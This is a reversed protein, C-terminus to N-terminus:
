TGSGDPYSPSTAQALLREANKLAPELSAAWRALAPQMRPDSMHDGMGRTLSLRARESWATVDPETSHILSVHASGGIAGIWDIPRSPQPTPPCLRNKEADDDRASEVFAVVAANFTTFGGMLSQLTIRQPEFIPRAPATRFGSATCDVYVEGQNARVEGNQLVIRNAGLHLVRGYRM